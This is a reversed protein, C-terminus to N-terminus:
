PRGEEAVPAAPKHVRKLVIFYGQTDVPVVEWQDRQDRYERMEEFRRIDSYRHGTDIVIYDTDDPVKDEYNAVRRPYHSYDYSREFHTFRPHIFDTSAVRATPPILPLVKAFQKAREDPVYLRQWYFPSGSDWFKIGLPSLSFFVCTVASCCLIWLARERVVDSTAPAHKSGAAVSACAAWVLIPIIPAHFHHFPGPFDKTLENLALLLFIPAAVLLRDWARFPLGLPLLLDLFLALTGATALHLVLRDPRTLINLVIEVPTKGFAQFYSAYHVTVGDRFWPIAVKVAVVVYLAALVCVLSGALMQGRREPEELRGKQRWADVLLWLGWPAIVVAFDEQCSLTLALALSMWGWRRREGLDIAWLLLPIGFASPRFTKLDIAIDLFQLPFYLLYALALLRAAVTSGSHRRAMSYVPIAGLALAASGSFELLLHSPILAYLPLLLLHVVQIHEGLFLGQDLYSRFGKGHLTNWLHEEYMSSDGHPIQLNFWLAFNLTAFLAVYCVMGAGLIRMSKRSGAMEAPGHKLGHRLAEWLWGALTAALAMQVSRLLAATLPMGSLLLNVIWLGSWVAIPLTWFTNAIVTESLIDDQRTCSAARGGTSKPLKWYRALVWSGLNAAGCLLFACGAVAPLPWIATLGEPTRVFDGGAFTLLREWLESSFFAGAILESEGAFLLFLGVALMQLGFCLVVLPLPVAPVPPKAPPM